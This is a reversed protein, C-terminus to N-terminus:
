SKCLRAIGHLLVAHFLVVTHFLAVAHLFVVHLFVVVRLLVVAHLLVLTTIAHHILRPPAPREATWWNRDAASVIVRDDYM